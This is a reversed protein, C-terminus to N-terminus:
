PMLAILDRRIEDRYLVEIGAIVGKVVDIIMMGEEPELAVCEHGAGYSGHPKPQTYFTACFDDGCRCRDVIKLEFVQKALGDEGAAILLSRIEESLGPFANKLLLDM